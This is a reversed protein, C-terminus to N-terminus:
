FLYSEYFIYYFYANISKFFFVNFNGQPVQQAESLLVDVASLKEAIQAHLADIMGLKKRVPIASSQIQNLATPATELTWQKLAKLEPEFKEHVLSKKELKKLSDDAQKQAKKMKEEVETM